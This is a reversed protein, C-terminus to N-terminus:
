PSLPPHRPMRKAVAPGSATERARTQRAGKSWPGLGPQRRELYTEVQRRIMTALPEKWRNYNAVVVKGAADELAIGSSTLYAPMTLQRLRIDGPTGTPRGQDVAVDPLLYTRPMPRPATTCGLGGLAALGTAVVYTLLKSLGM